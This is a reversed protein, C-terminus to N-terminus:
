SSSNLRTGVKCMRHFHAHDFKRNVPGSTFTWSDSEYMCPEISSFLIKVESHDDIISFILRPGAIHRHFEAICVNIKAIIIGVM